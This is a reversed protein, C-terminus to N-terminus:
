VLELDSINAVQSPKIKMPVNAQIRCWNTEPEIEIVTYTLFSGDKNVEDKFPHIFKVQSGLKINM